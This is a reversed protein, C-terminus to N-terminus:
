FLDPNKKVWEMLREIGEEPSVKPVWGLEQKARSINSIYVPQDGPRTEFHALPITRGLKEELIEILEVLSASNEPGGGINYIRGRTTDIKDIAREFANILDDIYLIDRVQKGNGYINLGDGSMTSIVFHAVWGQDENGFQRIGYQCSMRFVVGRLGYIRSYDRIYQDAAGKSCGYPSHFDLPHTEPIGDPYDRFMYRTDGEVVAVDEMGGYVKNTSTFLIIPDSGGTRVAELLNVTGVANVEFDTYPDQVSTTVAVQSAFHFIIEANRVPDELSDKDRVDGQIFSFLDGDSHNEELWALNKETGRRSLNDLVTVSCGKRLFYDAVNSGIFGAGGTVLIKM